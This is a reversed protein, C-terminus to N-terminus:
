GKSSHSLSNQGSAGRSGVTLNPTLAEGNAASSPCPGGACGMPLCTFSPSLSHGTTRPPAAQKGFHVAFNGDHSRANKRLSFLRRKSTTPKEKRREQGAGRDRSTNKRQSLIRFTNVSEGTTTTQTPTSLDFSFNELSWQLDPNSKKSRACGSLRLLLQAM